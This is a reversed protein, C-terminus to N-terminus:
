LKMETSNMSLMNCLWCGQVGVRRLLWSAVCAVAPADEKELDVVGLSGPNGPVNDTSGTSVRLTAADVCRVRDDDAMAAVESGALVVAARGAASSATVSPFGVPLKAFAVELAIIGVTQRMIVVTWYKLALMPAADESPKRSRSLIEGSIPGGMDEYNQYAIQMRKLEMGIGSSEDNYHAAYIQWHQVKIM